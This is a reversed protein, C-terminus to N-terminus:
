WSRKTARHEPTSKHCSGACDRLSSVSANRHEGPEYDNAHCGACDPAYTANSWANAASEPTSRHCSSCSITRGHDVYNPSSHTFSAPTWASTTHCDDCSASTVLHGSPKGTSTSGNHCTACTGPVVSDHNFGATIWSTTSHCADCSETTQIHSASKGTATTGNHCTAC